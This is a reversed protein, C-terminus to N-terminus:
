AEAQSGASSKDQKGKTHDAGESVRRKKGSVKPSAGRWGCNRLGKSTKRSCQSAGLEAGQSHGTESGKGWINGHSRRERVLKNEESALKETLVVKVARSLFLAKGSLLIKFLHRHKCTLQM